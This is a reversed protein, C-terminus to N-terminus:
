KVVKLSPRKKTPVKAPVVADDGPEPPPPEDSGEEEQFAMGQGNERSYIALAAGIPVRIFQPQGSFRANFEIEDNGMVLNQVATPSINLMIRGEHVHGSPVQVGEKDANVLLHPTMGNDAIWEYLARILYPRSSTM